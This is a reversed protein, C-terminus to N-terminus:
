HATLSHTPTGPESKVRGPTRRALQKPFEVFNLDPTNRKSNTINHLLVWFVGVGWNGACTNQKAKDHTAQGSKQM